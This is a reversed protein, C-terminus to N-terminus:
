GVYRTVVNARAFGQTPKVRGGVDLSRSLQVPGVKGPTSAAKRNSTSSRAAHGPGLWKRPFTGTRWGVVLGSRVTDDLRSDRLSVPLRLADRNAPLRLADRNAPQHRPDEPWGLTWDLRRPNTSNGKGRGHRGKAPHRSRPSVAAIDM